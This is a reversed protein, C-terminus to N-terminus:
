ARNELRRRATHKKPSNWKKKQVIHTDEESKRANVEFELVLLKYPDNMFQTVGTAAKKKSHIAM